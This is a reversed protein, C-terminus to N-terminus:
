FKHHRQINMEYIEINTYMKTLFIVKTKNELPYDFIYNYHGGNM